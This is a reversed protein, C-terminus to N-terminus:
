KVILMKKTNIFKQGEGEATIRYFYVGSSLNSGDFEITYYDATKIENVITAVEKGLVDYIRVSVKGEFPMQFDIKSIPNGPNPYNQSVKFEFPRAIDVTNNLDYYEFLGNYDIQKLRYKYKGTNLKKDEFSYTQPENTTGSGRVFGVKSWPSLEGGSIVNCREVDYGSNNLEWTSEWRLIVSNISSSSNFYNLQVPLAEDQYHAVFDSANGGALTFDGGAYLNSGNVFIASVTGPALGSGMASWSFGDWKAIRNASLGSVTTFSGGVILNGDTNTLSHVSGNTGTGLASWTTGNWKAIRNVTVGGAISFFGGAFVDNGISTLTNVMNDTGSGLATWVSGDWKAVNNVTVSGATTFSGGAYLDTGIAVLSNIRGDMGSGLASWTTGNWKAIRNVTVGGATTFSGGAYLDTGIAILSNVRGDM